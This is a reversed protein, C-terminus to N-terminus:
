LKKNSKVKVCRIVYKLITYLIHKREIEIRRGIRNRIWGISQVTRAIEFCRKVRDQKRVIFFVISARSIPTIGGAFASKNILRM